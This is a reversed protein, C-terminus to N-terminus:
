VRVGLVNVPPTAPHHGVASTVRVELGQFRFGSGQVRFRWITFIFGM